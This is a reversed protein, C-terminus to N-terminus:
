LREYDGGGGAMEGNSSLSLEEDADTSRTTPIMSGVTRSYSSSSSSRSMSLRFDLDAEKQVAEPTQQHIRLAMFYGVVGLVAMLVSIWAATKQGAQSGALL